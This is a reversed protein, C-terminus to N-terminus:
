VAAPAGAAASGSSGPRAQSDVPTQALRAPQQPRANGQIAAIMEPTALKEASLFDSKFNLRVEGSLQAKLEAQSTSSEDLASGVTTVHSQENVNVSGGGIGLFGFGVASVNTNRSAQRDYLSASSKRTAVDSARMGFVVKARISGDTVVIRNIGLMVMSALLQMRSKAMSMRAGRVLAAESEPDSIDTLPQPLMMDRSIAALRTESEDGKTVLRPQSTGETADDSSPAEIDFVDPYNDVLWDRANNETINERAFDDVSQSVSKLMEAYARMQQISSTVIAQYVNEILGGVFKPFDVKGVLEGFQQTGDRIAGGVFDDGAFGQNSSARDAADRVGGQSPRSQARALKPLANAHDQSILGDPDAMYSGIRVMQHAIERREEPTLEGFAESRELLERVKGRTVTLTDPAPQATGSPLPAHLETM